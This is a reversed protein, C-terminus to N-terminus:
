NPFNKRLQIKESNLGHGKNQFFEASSFNKLNIRISPSWNYALPMSLLPLITNKASIKM